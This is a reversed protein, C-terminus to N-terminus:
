HFVGLINLEARVRSTTPFPVIQSPFTGARDICGASWEMDEGDFILHCMVISQVIYIINVGLTFVSPFVDRPGFM